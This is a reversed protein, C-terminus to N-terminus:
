ARAVTTSKEALHEVISERLAALKETRTQLDEQSLDNRQLDQNYLCFGFGAVAGGILVGLSATIVGFFIAGLGLFGGINKRTNHTESRFIGVDSAVAHDMARNFKDFDALDFDPNSSVTHAGELGQGMLSVSYKKEVTESVEKRQADSLATGFQEVANIADSKLAALAKDSNWEEEPYHKGYWEKWKAISKQVDIEERM